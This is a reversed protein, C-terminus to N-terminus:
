RSPWVALAHEIHEVARTEKDRVELIVPVIQRRVAPDAMYRFAEPNGNGGELDWLRWMLDHIGALYATAHYIDEVASRHIDVDVRESMSALFQSGYWRAEAVLGIAMEHVWHHERLLTDNKAPFATDDAMHDAWAQYAALGSHYLVDNRQVQPNRAIQVAWQLAERYTVGLSPRKLPEGIIVLGACEKFWGRRRYYGTPDITIASSFAPDDQFFNWGLLIDGSEDYGTIIGAEPPGVIGFSIVPHGAQLSNMIRQRVSAEDPMRSPDLYEYAYGLASFTRRIPEEPNDSMLRFEANDNSYGPEWTLWFATGSIGIVFSYACTTSRETGASPMHKCGLETVGLYEMCARVASSFCLDEPCRKGGQYFHVRPVGELVFREPYGDTPKNM